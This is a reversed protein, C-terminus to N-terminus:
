LSKQILLAFLFSNKNSKFFLGGLKTKLLDKQKHVFIRLGLYGFEVQAEKGPLTNHM